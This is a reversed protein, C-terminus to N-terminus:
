WVYAVQKSEGVKKSAKRLQKRKALRLLAMMVRNLECDYTPKLKAHVEAATRPEKFFGDDRLRLIRVPLTGTSARGEVSGKGVVNREGGRQHALRLCEAVLGDIQKLAAVLKNRNM